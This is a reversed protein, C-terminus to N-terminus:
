SEDDETEQAAMAQAELRARAADQEARIEEATRFVEETDQYESVEPSTVERGLARLVDTITAATHVSKEPQSKLFIVTRTRTVKIENGDDDNKRGEQFQELVVSVDTPDIYVM